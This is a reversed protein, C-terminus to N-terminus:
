KVYKLIKSQYIIITILFPYFIMNDMGYPSFLLDWSVSTFIFIILPLFSNINKIDVFFKKTLNKYVFIWFILGVIGSHVWSQFIISHVPILCDGLKYDAYYNFKFLFDYQFILYDCNKAWSGHGFIPSDIIAKGYAFIEDRGGFLFGLDGSQKLQKQALYDGLYDNLVLYNYFIYIIYLIFVFLSFFIIKNNIVKNKFDISSNIFFLGFLNILCFLFLYRVNLNLSIISFIIFIAGLLLLNEKKYKWYFYSYLVLSLMLLNLGLGFKWNTMLNDSFFLYLSDVFLFTFFFDRLLLPNIKVLKFFVYFSCMTIFIKAFGRASDKFISNNYIDSIIQSILWLFCLIIIKKQFDDLKDEKFNFFIYAAIIAILIQAFTLTGIFQFKINFSLTFFILFIYKM